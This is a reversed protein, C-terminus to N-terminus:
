AALCAPQPENARARPGCDGACASVVTLRVKVRAVICSSNQKAHLHTFSLRTRCFSVHLPFVLGAGAGASGKGHLFNSHGHMSSVLLLAVVFFVVVSIISFCTHVLHPM